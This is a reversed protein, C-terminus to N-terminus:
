RCTCITKIYRISSCVSPCSIQNNRVFLAQRKVLSHQSNQTYYKINSWDKVFWLNWMNLKQNTDLQAMWWTWNQTDVTKLRHTCLFLQHSRWWFISIPQPCPMIDDSILQTDELNSSCNTKKNSKQKIDREKEPM